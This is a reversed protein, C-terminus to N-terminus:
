KVYVIRKTITQGDDMTARVLYIGSPISKAPTWIFQGRMQRSKTSGGEGSPSPSEIGGEAALDDREGQPSLSRSISPTKYVVNGRLDYINVDM